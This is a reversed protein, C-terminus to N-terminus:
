TDVLLASHIRYVAEPVCVPKDTRDCESTVGVTVQVGHPCTNPPTWGPVCASGRAWRVRAPFRVENLGYNVGM